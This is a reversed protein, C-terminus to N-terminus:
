KSQRQVRLKGEISNTNGSKHGSVKKGIGGIREVEVKGGERGGERERGGKRGKREKMGKGKGKGERRGRTREDKRKRGEKGEPTNSDIKMKINFIVPIGM